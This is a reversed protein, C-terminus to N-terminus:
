LKEKNPDCTAPLGDRRLFDFWYSAKWKDPVPAEFVHQGFSIATCGLCIKQKIRNRMPRPLQGYERNSFRDGIVRLDFQKRLAYTLMSGIGSLSDAVSMEITSLVVNGEKGSNQVDISCTEIVRFTAKYTREQEIKQSDQTSTKKSTKRRCKETQLHLEAGENEWLTNVEGLVLATFQHRPCELTNSATGEVLLCLGSLGTDLKTLSEYREKGEQRALVDELTGSFQGKTRLGVPKWVVCLTPDLREVVRISITPSSVEAAVTESNEVKVESTEYVLRASDMVVQGDLTVKGSAILKSAATKTYGFNHQLYKRLRVASKLISDTSSSEPVVTTSIQHANQVLEVDCPTAAPSRLHNEHAEMSPSTHLCVPCTFVDKDDSNIPPAVPSVLQTTPQFLLDVSLEVNVDGSTGDYLEGQTRRHGYGYKGLWHRSGQKGNRFKRPAAFTKLNNKTDAAVLHSLHMADHWPAATSAKGPPVMKLGLREAAEQVKWTGPQTGCLCLHLKSAMNDVNDDDNHDKDSEDNQTLCTAASALYHALLTQHRRAQVAEDNDSNSGNHHGATIGLHPHYFLILDFKNHNQQPFSNYRHLQTADVGFCVTVNHQQRLESLVQPSNHYLRALQAENSVITSAVLDIQHSGYARALALSLTLDGDGVTLIRVRGRRRPKKKLPSSTGEEKM